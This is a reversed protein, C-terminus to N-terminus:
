LGLMANKLGDDAPHTGLWNRFMADAFPKGAIVVEGGPGVVTTGKEPVYTVNLTMGKKMEAPIVTAVKDLGPRVAALDPASNKEFGEHFAGMVKEKEVGRLFSMHVSKPADAQVIAAPDKSPTAVYLAGVYVKVNFITARRLGVGNLKLETGEAVVTDPVKVGEVDRAAAPASALLALCLALRTM